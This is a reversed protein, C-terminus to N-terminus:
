QLWFWSNVIQSYVAYATVKHWRQSELDHGHNDTTQTMQNLKQSNVTVGIKLRVDFRM